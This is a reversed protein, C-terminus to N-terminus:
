RGDREALPKAALEKLKRVPTDAIRRGGGFERATECLPELL